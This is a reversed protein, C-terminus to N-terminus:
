AGIEANYWLLIRTLRGQSQKGANRDMAVQLLATTFSDLILFACKVSPLGMKRCWSIEM